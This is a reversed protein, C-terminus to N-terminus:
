LRAVVFSIDNVDVFGSGDVDATTTGMLGLRFVVYSIDNVDVFGDRNADGAIPLGQIAAAANVLGHGTTTDYGHGYVQPSVDFATIQLQTRIEEPTLGPNLRRMLAAVGAAHPSAFSTGDIGLGAIIVYNTM